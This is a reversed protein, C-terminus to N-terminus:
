LNTNAKIGRQFIEVSDRIGLAYSSDACLAHARKEQPTRCVFSSAMICLSYRSGGPASLNLSNAVVPEQSVGVMM